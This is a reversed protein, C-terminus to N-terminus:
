PNVEEKEFKFIISFDYVALINNLYIDKEYKILESPAYNANIYIKFTNSTFSISEQTVLDISTQKPSGYFHSHTVRNNALYSFNHYIKEDTTLGTQKYSPYYSTDEPDADFDPLDEEFFVDFTVCDSLYIQNATKTKEIVNSMIDVKSNTLSTSSFIFEYVVNCNLGRLDFNSQQIVREIPDYINMVSVANGSQDEFNNTTKNFGYKVVTGTAPTLYDIYVFDDSPDATGADFVIENYEFRYVNIAELHAEDVEKVGFYSNQNEATRNTTFWAITALVNACLSFFTVLGIAMVRTKNLGTKRKM